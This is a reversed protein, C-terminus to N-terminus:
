HDVEVPRRWREVRARAWDIGQEQHCTVCSTEIRRDYCNDVHLLFYEPTHIDLRETNLIEKQQQVHCDYCALKVSAPHRTHAAYNEKFDHCGLCFDMAGSAEQKREETAGYIGCVECRVKSNAARDERWKAFERLIAQSPTEDPQASLSKYYRGLDEGPVYGVPFYYEGTNDVGRVHCAACIMDRRDPPLKKPNVITKASKASVHNWGPGHCAECGIRHESVPVNGHPDYATVHCGKCFKGYPKKRWSWVNYPRWTQSQVSWLKPLVYYEDGIKKMYRQDWHGGITYEVEERTFGLGPASFDGLVAEPTEKADQVVTAHFTQRWGEYKEAHCERCRDSGAYGPPDFNDGRAAAGSVLAWALVACAARRTM